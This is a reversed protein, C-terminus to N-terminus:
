HRVIIVRQIESTGEFIQMIKADRMWKEVPYDRTYGYGGLVQVADTTVKMAVDATFAKAMSAAQTANIGQDALYATRWCFLPGSKLIFTYCNKSGEAQRIKHRFDGQLHTLYDAWTKAGYPNSDALDNSSLAFCAYYLINSIQDFIL